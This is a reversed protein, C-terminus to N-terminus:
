GYVMNIITHKCCLYKKLSVHLGYIIGQLSHLDLLSNTRGDTILCMYNQIDNLSPFNFFCNSKIM